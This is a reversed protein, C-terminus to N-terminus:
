AQHQQGVPEGVHERASHVIYTSLRKRQKSPPEADRMAESQAVSPIHWSKTKLASDLWEADRVSFGQPDYGKAAVMEKLEAIREDSLNTEATHRPPM